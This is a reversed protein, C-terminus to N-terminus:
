IFVGVLSVLSGLSAIKNLYAYMIPYDPIRRPMGATGLFHMPFFTLNAGIFTVLFHIQGLSERYKYGSM